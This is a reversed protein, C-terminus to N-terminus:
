HGTQNMRDTNNKTQFYEKKWEEYKKLQEETLVSRYDRDMQAEDRGARAEELDDLKKAQEPTLNLVEHLRAEEEPTFIKNVNLELDTELNSQDYVSSEPEMNDYANHDLGVEPDENVRRGDQCAGFVTIFALSLALVYLKM